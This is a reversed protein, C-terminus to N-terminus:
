SASLLRSSNQWGSVRLLKLFNLSIALFFLQKNEINNNKRLFLYIIVPIMIYAFAILADSIVHLAILPPQWLLCYGHPTVAAIDFWSM